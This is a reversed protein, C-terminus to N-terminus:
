CECQDAVEWTFCDMIAQGAASMHDEFSKLENEYDTLMDMTSITIGEWGLTWSKTASTFMTQADDVLCMDLQPYDISFTATLDLLQIKFDPMISKAFDIFMQM